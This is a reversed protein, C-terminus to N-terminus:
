SALEQSRSIKPQMWLGMLCAPLFALGLYSILRGTRLSAPQFQLTVSQAGAQVMCGLYDGNVRYVQRPEGNVTAKWGPHYSEAIVLLQEAPAQTQIVIHGPSDELMVARGPEASRFVMPVETIAATEVDIKKLDAAPQASTITQNVLRVRSLPNPVESWRANREILGKIENTSEGRQVWRVGAVRLAAAQRYNLLREPELGAYGDAKCWGRLIIQDGSRLGPQDYRYLSAAVRDKSEEPPTPIKAIYESLRPCYPYVSYSLGYAGLDVVTLLILAPFASYSGRAASSVLIAASIFLAPGILVLPRSAIYPQDRFHIGITAAATAVLALLWIAAFIRGSLPRPKNATMLARAAQKRRQEHRNMRLLLMFGLVALVMAAFQFIVIYRAPFRFNGILPLGAVLYYLRGHEGFALILATVGCLAAFAALAKLRGLDHWQVVALVILMLPVAGLYLGLEHTNQGVVRNVFLYPAALQLLNLPHLSGTYAFASDASQRASHMLADITPMLQVGGLFLGICKALLLDPWTSAHCGICKHCFFDRECGERPADHGTSLIYITYALETLLSFWVFQPYGLLLQSGTLLAIATVASFVKIRSADTL